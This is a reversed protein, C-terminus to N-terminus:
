WRSFSYRSAGQGCGATSGVEGSLLRIEVQRGQWQQSLPHEPGQFEAWMPVDLWLHWLIVVDVGHKVM